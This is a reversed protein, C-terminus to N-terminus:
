LDFCLRCPFNLYENILCTHKNTQKERLQLAHCINAKWRNTLISTLISTEQVAYAYLM